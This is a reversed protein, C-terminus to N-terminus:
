EEDEVDDDDTGFFGKKPVEVEDELQKQKRRYVGKQIIYQMVEDTGGGIRLLRVDRLCREIPYKNTYGIGGLIQLADDCIKFASKCSFLKAMAALQGDELNDVSKEVLAKAAEYKTVMNAVKFNIGEFECIPRKFQVREMSYPIATDMARKAVALAQVSLVIREPGLMNQLSAISSTKGSTSKKQEGKLQKYFLANDKPVRVGNFKMHGLHLGHLGMMEYEELVEFGEWDSQVIFGGNRAYVVLTDAVSGNVIFRKEGTLVYEENQEDFEAVTKMRSLDSGAEPETFCFSGIKDGQCLPGIYPKLKRTKGFMRILFAPYTSSFRSMDMPLSQYCLAESFLLEQIYSGSLGGFRKPFSIGIYGHKGMPRLVDWIDMKRNEVDDVHPAVHDEMYKWVEAKWELEKEDLASDPLILEM